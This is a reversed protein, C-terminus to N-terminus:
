AAASKRAPVDIEYGMDAALEEFSMPNPDAVPEGNEDIEGARLKGLKEAAEISEDFKDFLASVAGRADEPLGQLEEHLRKQRGRAFTSQFKAWGLMRGSFYEKQVDTISGPDQIADFIDLNEEMFFTDGDRRYHEAGGMGAAGLDALAVARAILSSRESLNPQFATSNEGDFDPVTTMIAERAIKKDEDTFVDGMPSGSNVKDMFAFLEEASAAENDTIERKRLIKTNDGDVVSDDSWKQVTDHHSAILRALQIDRESIDDPLNTKLARLVAETADVVGQTHEVNHFPLRDRKDPADEFREKVRVLADEIGIKVHQEFSIPESEPSIM